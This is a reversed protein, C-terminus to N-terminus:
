SRTKAMRVVPLAEGNALPVAIRELAVYGELTYLPVGTLTSGMEFRTFGAQAAAAECAHLLTTGIGRRAWDPHVFIARIKAADVAPDLLDDVRGQAHDSGFLTRRRSWGGCGTRVRAGGPADAEAVFYTGDAILQTDIGLVTGLAGAIQAPTYDGAQLGRVSAEVLAQLAPVEALTALRLHVPQHANM